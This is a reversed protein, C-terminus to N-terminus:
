QAVGSEALGRQLAGDGSYAATLRDAAGVGLLLALGQHFVAEVEGVPRALALEVRHDAAVVLDAADNLDQLPAALVVRHQNALRTDAFGGDDFSQRLADDVAFHGFREFVLTYQHQVHCRQQGTGLVAAFKFLSEFCHEFVNRLIFTLRNNKNIFKMRHYTCSFRITRHVGAVHQFRGESAALQVADASGRQVFVALVDLLVSRQLPSELLHQDALGRHFAGDGDQTAQLLAILQVVADVDSVRGDDGSGLQRMTVDGVAKQRVFGDVQDILGGATDAHFDVRLRFRHVLEVATQNLELDLALRHAPFLVLARAFTESEDFVLDRPEFAVIGIEILDPLGLFGRHLAALVDFFM